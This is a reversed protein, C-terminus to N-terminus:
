RPAHCWTSPSRCADQFHLVFVVCLVYLYQCSGDLEPYGMRTGRQDVIRSSMKAQMLKCLTNLTIDASCLRYHTCALLIFGTQWQTTGHM